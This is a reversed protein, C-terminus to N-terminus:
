SGNSRRQADEYVVRALKRDQSERAVSKWGYGLQKNATEPAPAPITGDLLHDRIDVRIAGGRVDPLIMEMEEPNEEKPVIVVAPINGGWVKYMQQLWKQEWHETDFETTFLQEFAVKSVAGGDINHKRGHAVGKDDIHKYEDCDEIITVLEEVVEEVSAGVAIANEKGDGVMVVHNHGNVEYEIHAWVSYMGHENINKRLPAFSPHYNGTPILAVEDTEVDEEGSVLVTAQSAAPVSVAVRWRCSESGVWSFM